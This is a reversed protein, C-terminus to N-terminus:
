DREGVVWRQSYHQGCECAAYAHVVDGEAYQGGIDDNRGEAFALLINLQHDTADDDGAAPCTGGTLDPDVTGATDGASRAFEMPDMGTGATFLRRGEEGPVVLAVGDDVVEGHETITGGEDLSDKALYLVVDDLREGALFEDLKSM